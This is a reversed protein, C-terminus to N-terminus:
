IRVGCFRCEADGKVVDKGIQSYPNNEQAYGRRFGYKKTVCLGTVWIPGFPL